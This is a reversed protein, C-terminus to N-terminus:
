KLGEFYNDLEKQIKHCEIQKEHSFSLWLNPDKKIEEKIIGLYLIKSILPFNGKIVKILQENM